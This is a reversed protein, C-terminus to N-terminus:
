IARWPRPVSSTARRSRSGFAQAIAYRAINVDIKAAPLSPERQALILLEGPRNAAACLRVPWWRWAGRVRM